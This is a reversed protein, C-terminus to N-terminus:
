GYLQDFVQLAAGGPAIRTCAFLRLDAMSRTSYWQVGLIKVDDRSCRVLRAQLHLYGAGVQSFLGCLCIQRRSNVLGYVNVGTGRVVAVADGLYLTALWTHDLVHSRM